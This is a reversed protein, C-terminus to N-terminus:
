TLWMLLQVVSVPRSYLSWASEIMHKQGQTCCCSENAHVSPCKTTARSRDNSFVLMPGDAQKPTSLTRAVSSDSTYVVILVKLAPIEAWGPNLPTMGGVKGSAVSQGCQIEFSWTLAALQAYFFRGWVSWAEPRRCPANLSSRNVTFATIGWIIKWRFKKSFILFDNKRPFYYASFFFYNVGCYPSPFSAEYRLGIEIDSSMWDVTYDQKM